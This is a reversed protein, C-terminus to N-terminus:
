NANAVITLGDLKSADKKPHDQQADIANTNAKRVPVSKPQPKLFYELGAFPAEIILYMFVALLVTFGLDSWFKLMVQYDSFYTSTRTTRTNIEQVFMHWMYVSYSLRSLPQWLPSSLFSNALGGYGQMCAFVLWCLALPWAIRTFTYYSADALTSLQAADWKGAPYLAFISTFILALCLAWGSWVAVWGLQFKKGRNLHLFYGFLFGILWPAAHTHTAFYLKRMADQDISKTLMSYNNVMQTAFLCASLLLMLVFIGGAGKKGWKYVVILLIPSIIFLQMDVGLYWTHGLCLDNTYNQVFLLSWYWGNECGELGSYGGQFLPGSAIIPMIKMYVLIAIALLPMIRILRHLYMLPVNLKGKTRDMLRLSILTVLLGGLFFFSDVSFFGHLIFSSSALEMWTYAYSLNINPAMVTYIFEHSYVVWFLSLCRIGHLCDIVNPNSKNEVVRFLARSSVRASFIKVLIPLENQNHCLLYDYLTFLLVASAMVSLIVITFITLGDLPESEDTQCSSDSISIGSSSINLNLVRQAMEAIFLNMHAASCSAPFCTATKVSVMNSIASNVGMLKGPYVTLFCYKGRITSQSMEQKINLCEDYNGLDYFNGTLIGSPLYGWSDIMKLAWLQGASLGMTLDALEQICLLDQQSPIRPDPLSLDNISANRFFHAFEIGLSRLKNYRQLDELVNVDQAKATGILALGCLLVAGVVNVM